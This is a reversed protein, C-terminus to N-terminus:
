RRPYSTSMTVDDNDGFIRNMGASQITVRNTSEVIIRYPTRWPDVFEGTNNTSREPISLFVKKKPNNGLLAQLIGSSSGSPYEDYEAEYYQLAGLLSRMEIKVLPVGTERHGWRPMLIPVVLIIILGVLVCILITKTLNM